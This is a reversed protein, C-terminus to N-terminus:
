MLCDQTRSRVRRKARDPVPFSTAPLAVFLVAPAAVVTGAEEDTTTVAVETTGAEEVTETTEVAVVVWFTMAGGGEPIAEDIDEEDEAVV